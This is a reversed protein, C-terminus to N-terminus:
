PQFLFVRRRRARHCWHSSPFPDDHNKFLGKKFPWPLSCLRDCHHMSIASVTGSPPTFVTFLLPSPWSALSFRDGDCFAQLPESLNDTCNQPPIFHVQIDSFNSITLSLLTPHSPTTLPLAKWGHYSYKCYIQNHSRRRPRKLQAPRLLWLRRLGGAAGCLPQLTQASAVPRTPPPHVRQRLQQRGRVGQNIAPFATKGEQDAPSGLRDDPPLTWLTLSNVPQRWDPHFWQKNLM